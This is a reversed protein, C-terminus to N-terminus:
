RGCGPKGEPLNNHLLSHVPKTLCHAKKRRQSHLTIMHVRIQPKPSQYLFVLGSLSGKVRKQRCKTKEGNSQATYGSAATVRSVRQSTDNTVCLSFSYSLVSFVFTKEFIGEGLLLIERTKPCDSTLKPQFM